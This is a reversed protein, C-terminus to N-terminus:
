MATDPPMALATFFARCAIEWRTLTSTSADVMFFDFFRQGGSRINDHEVVHVQILDALGHTHDIFLRQYLHGAADGPFLEPVQGLGAHIEDGDAGEGV